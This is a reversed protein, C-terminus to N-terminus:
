DQTEYGHQSEEQYVFESVRERHSHRRSVTRAGSSGFRSSRRRQVPRQTVPSRVRRSLRRRSSWRRGVATWQGPEKKAIVRGASFVGPRIFLQSRRFGPTSTPVLDGSADLRGPHFPHTSVPYAANGFWGLDLQLDHPHGGNRIRFRDPGAPDPLTPIGHFRPHPEWMLAQKASSSTTTTTTTTIPPSKIDDADKEHASRLRIELCLCHCTDPNERGRCARCWQWDCFTTGDSSCCQCMIIDVCSIHKKNPWCSNLCSNLSPSKCCNCGESMAICCECSQAGEKKACCNSDGSCRGRGKLCYCLLVIAVILAVYLGVAICVIAATPLDAM